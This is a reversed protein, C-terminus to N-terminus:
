LNALFQLGAFSNPIAAQADALSMNAIANFDVNHGADGSFIPNSPTFADVGGSQNLPNFESAQGTQRIGSAPNTNGIGNLNINHFNVMHARDGKSAM